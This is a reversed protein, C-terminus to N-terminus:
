EQMWEKPIMGSCWKFNNKTAWDSYTTNSKKALKVRPNMFMIRIDLGPNQDRVTRMKLRDQATFKGKLELYWVYGSANTIKFDPYYKRKPPLWAFTDAEYEWMINEKTFTAATTAEFKSAFVRGGEGKTRTRVM